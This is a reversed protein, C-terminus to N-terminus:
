SNTTCRYDEVIKCDDVGNDAKWLLQQPTSRLWLGGFWDDCGLEEGSDGPPEEDPGMPVLFMMDYAYDGRAMREAREWCALRGPTTRSADQYELYNHGHVVYDHWGVYDIHVRVDGPLAIEAIPRPWPWLPFVLRSGPDMHGLGWPMPPSLRLVREPKIGHKRFPNDAEVVAIRM